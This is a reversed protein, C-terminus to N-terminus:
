PSPRSVDAPPAKPAATKGERTSKGRSILGAVGEWVPEGRLEALMALELEFGRRTQRVRELWCRLDLVADAAITRHHQMSQSIHIVGFPSFPFSPALVIEVMLGQFLIELFSTPVAEGPGYGCVERYRAVWAPDLARRPQEVVIPGLAQRAPGSMAGQPMRARALARAYQRPISVGGLLEIRHEPGDQAIDRPLEFETM